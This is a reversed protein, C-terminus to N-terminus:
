INHIRERLFFMAHINTFRLFKYIIALIKKVAHIHKNIRM